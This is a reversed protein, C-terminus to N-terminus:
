VVATVGVVGVQGAGIQFEFPKNRKVSSDFETGDTLKGAPNHNPPNLCCLFNYNARPACVTLNSARWSGASTSFEM